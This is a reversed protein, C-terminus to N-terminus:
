YTEALRFLNDIEEPSKELQQAMLVLAPWDRRVELAFEWDDQMEQSSAAIMSEVITRLGLASLARRIQRPTVAQPPPKPTVVWGRKLETATLEPIAASITETVFDYVPMPLDVVYVFRFEAEPGFKPSPAVWDDAEQRFDEVTGTANRIKAFITM